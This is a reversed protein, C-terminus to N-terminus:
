ILLATELAALAEGVARWSKLFRKAAKALPMLAVAAHCRHVQAIVTEFVFPVAIWGIHQLAGALLLKAGGQFTM